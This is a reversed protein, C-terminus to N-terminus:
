VSTYMYVHFYSDAAFSLLKGFMNTQITIYVSKSIFIHKSRSENITVIITVEVSQTIPASFTESM